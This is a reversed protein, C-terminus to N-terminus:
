EQVHNTDEATEVSEQQVLEQERKEIEEGIKNAMETIFKISADAQLFEEAFFQSAMLKSHIFALHQYTVKLQEISVTENNM